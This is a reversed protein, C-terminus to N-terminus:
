TEDEAKQAIASGIAENIQDLIKQNETRPDYEGTITAFDPKIKISFYDLTQRKQGQYIATQVKYDGATLDFEQEFEWGEDSPTGTIDLSDKGRVHYTLTWNDSTITEGNIDKIGEDRWTRTDGKSIERPFNYRNIM